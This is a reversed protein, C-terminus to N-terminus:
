DVFELTCFTENRKLTFKSNILLNLSVIFHILNIVMIHSLGHPGMFVTAYKSKEMASVLFFLM